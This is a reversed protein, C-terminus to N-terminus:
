GEMITEFNKKSLEIDRKNAEEKTILELNSILKFATEVDGNGGLQKYPQYLSTISTLEERTIGNRAIYADANHIVRDHIIGMLAEGMTHMYLDREKDDKANQVMIERLEDYKQELTTIKDKKLEKKENKKDKRNILFQIFSFLAGSGLITLIVQITSDM